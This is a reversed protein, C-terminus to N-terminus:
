GSHVVWQKALLEAVAEDRVQYASLIRRPKTEAPLGVASVLAAVLEADSLDDPAQHGVLSAAARLPVHDGAHPKVDSRVDFRGADSCVLFAIDGLRLRREVLFRRITGCTPTAGTWRVSQPGLDSSIERLTGPRAGFASAVGAPLALSSGRLHDANVTIRYCWAEGVRYLRRAQRVAATHHGPIVQEDAPACTSWLGSEDHVFRGDAVLAREVHAPPRDTTLLDMLTATSVPAGVAEILAAAHDTLPRTVLVASSGVVQIDCAAFWEVTETSTLDLAQAADDVSVVGCDTEYQELMDITKAKAVRMDPAVVWGDVVEFHDDLRDLAFWLPVGLSAVVDDLAPHRELLRALPAVPEIEARISASLGGAATGFRCAAAFKEKVSAVIMGARSKTVHLLSSLAGMSLPDPAMLHSRLVLDEREDLQEVLNEIEDLPDSEVRVDLERATIAAVRSAADQVAEPAGDEIEVDILSDDLRGRLRWWRALEGLDDILQTVAPNDVDEDPPVGGAPDRLIAAGLLGAVIQQMTEPSTGRVSFMGEIDAALLGGVLERGAIRRVLTEARSPLRLAGLPLARDLGPAVRHFTLSRHDRVVLRALESVIPELTRDRGTDRPSDAIWWDGVGPVLAELEAAGSSEYGDLWPFLEVWIEARM